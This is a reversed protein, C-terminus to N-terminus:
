EKGVQFRKAILPNFSGALRVAVIMGDSRPAFISALEQVWDEEEDRGRLIGAVARATPSTSQMAASAARLMPWVPPRMGGSPRVGAARLSGDRLFSLDM